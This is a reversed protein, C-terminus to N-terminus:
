PSDDAKCSAEALGRATGASTTAVGGATACGKESFSSSPRKQVRQASAQGSGFLRRSHLGLSPSSPAALGAGEGARLGEGEGSGAACEGPRPPLPRAQKRLREAPLVPPPRESSSSPAALGTGEGARLGECAGPGAAREEPRPHDVGGRLPPTLVPPPLRPRVGARREFRAERAATPVLPQRCLLRCWRLPPSAQERLRDAPLFPRPRDSSACSATFGALFPLQSTNGSKVSIM